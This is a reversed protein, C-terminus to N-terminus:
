EGSLRGSPRTQHSQCQVTWVEPSKMFFIRFDTILKLLTLQEKLKFRCIQRPSFTYQPIPMKFFEYMIEVSNLLAGEIHNLWNFSFKIKNQTLNQM